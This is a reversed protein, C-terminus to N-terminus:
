KTLHEIFVIVYSNGRKSTTLPGALDMSVIQLARDIHVPQLPRIKGTTSPKMTQCSLCSGVYKKIDDLMAPWWFQQRIKEYTRDVGSHTGTLLDDHFTKLILPRLVGPLLIQEYENSEENKKWKRLLLDDQRYINPDIKAITCIKTDARQLEIM